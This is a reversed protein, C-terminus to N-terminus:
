TFDGRARLSICHAGAIILHDHLTIDLHRAAEAVRRTFQIDRESPIANGGPHNHVLIIAVADLELARNLVARPRVSIGNAEGHTIPEDAILRNGSDLLLIRLHETTCDGLTAVLYQRLSDGSACVPADIIRDRLSHALLARHADLLSVVEECTERAIRSSSACM